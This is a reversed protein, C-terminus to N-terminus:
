NKLPFSGADSFMHVYICSEHAPVITHPNGSLTSPPPRFPVFEPLWLLMCLLIYNLNFSFVGRNRMWRSGLVLGLNFIYDFWLM